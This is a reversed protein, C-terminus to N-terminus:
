YFIEVFNKTKRCDKYVLLLMLESKGLQNFYSFNGIAM